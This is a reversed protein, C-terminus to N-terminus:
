ARVNVNDFEENLLIKCCHSSKKKTAKQLYFTGSHESVSLTPLVNKVALDYSEPVSQKGMPVSSKVLHLKQKEFWSCNCRFVCGGWLLVTEHKTEEATVPFTANAAGNQCSCASDEAKAAMPSKKQQQQYYDCCPVRSASGTNHKQGKWIRVEHCGGGLSFAARVAWRNYVPLRLSLLNNNGFTGTSWQWAAIGAQSISICHM